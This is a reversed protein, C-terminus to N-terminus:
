SATVTASATATASATVTASASQATANSLTSALLGQNFERITAMEMSIISSTAPSALASPSTSDQVASPPARRIYNPNAILLADRNILSLDHLPWSTLPMLDTPTSVQVSRSGVM